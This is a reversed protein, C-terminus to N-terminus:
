YKLSPHPLERVFEELLVSDTILFGPLPMNNLVYVSRPKDPRFRLRIAQQTNGINLDHCYQHWRDQPRNQEIGPYEVLAGSDGEPEIRSISVRRQKVSVMGELIPYPNSLMEVGEKERFYNDVAKYRYSDKIYDNGTFYVGSLLFQVDFESYANTGKDMREILTRQLVTPYEESHQLYFEEVRKFDNKYVTLLIREQPFKLEILEGIKHLISEWKEKNKLSTVSTSNDLIQLIFNDPHIKRYDIVEGKGFVDLHRIGTLHKILEEPPTADTLVKIPIGPLEHIVEIGTFPNVRRRQNYFRIMEPVRWILGVLAMHEHVEMLESEEPDMWGRSQGGKLWRVLEETWNYSFVSLAAIEIENIEISSYINNIFSEDIFMVDFRKKMLEWIVEQTSFHAHQIIVVKHKPDMVQQYQRPYYCREVLPCGQCHDSKISSSSVGLRLKRQITDYDPCEFDVLKHEFGSKHSSLVFSDTECERLEEKYELGLKTAPIAILVKKDQKALSCSLARICVSKGSGQPSALLINGREGDTVLSQIHKQFDVFTTERIEKHTTLKVPAVVTRRIVTGGLFQIPSDIRDYFPCGHCKNFKEEWKKCGPFTRYPASSAVKWSEKWEHSKDSRLRFDKVLKEFWKYGTTIRQRHDVWFSADNFAALGALFLGASHHVEGQKDILKESMALKLVENAAQCNEMVPIMTKPLDLMPLPLKRPRYVFQFAKSKYGRREKELLAPLTQMLKEIREETLVSMEMWARMFEVPDDTIEGTGPHIIPFRRGRKLHWGLPLRILNDPKNVGFIEPFHQDDFCANRDTLSYTAAILRIFFEKIVTHRGETRVWIHERELSDGGMEIMYTIGLEDMKSKLAESREVEEKTDLDICIWRLYDGGFNPVVGISGRVKTGVKKGDEYFHETLIEPIIQVASPRYPQDSWQRSFPFKRGIFFTDMWDELLMFYDAGPARKNM